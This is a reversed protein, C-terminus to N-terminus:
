FDDPASGQHLELEVEKHFSALEALSSTAASSLALNAYAKMLTRPSWDRMLPSRDFFMSTNQSDQPASSNMLKAKDKTVAGAFHLIFDGPKFDDLYANMENPMRYDYEDVLTTQCCITARVRCIETKGTLLYLMSAQEFVWGEPKPWVEWAEDLFKNAWDGSKLLFHGSNINPCHKDGTMSLQKSGRPKLPALTQNMNMFLSDADMWFVFSFEKLANQVLRLKAWGVPRDSYSSSHDHFLLTYGHRDCYAKFNDHAVDCYTVNHCVSVVAFSSRRYQLAAALDLLLLAFRLAM